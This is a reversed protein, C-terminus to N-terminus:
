ADLTDRKSSSIEGEELSAAGKATESGSKNEKNSSFVEVVLAVIFLVVGCTVGIDAINFVPFDIFVFEIYDVVYSYIFRDIANSLGGAFVLSLGVLGLVSTDPALVFLYVVILLCIIISFVGLLFASDSFVGWAAGTNHILRLQFINLYPGAIVSGVEFSSCLLKSIRDLIVWLVVVLLFVVFNRGRFAPRKLVNEKNRSCKESM